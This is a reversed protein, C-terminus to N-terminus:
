REPNILELMRYEEFKYSATTLSESWSNIIKGFRNRIQSTTRGLDIADRAIIVLSLDWEGSIMFVETVRPHGSLYAAFRELEDETTNHLRIKVDVINAFGFNRPRLQIKPYYVKEALMRNMRKKVSDISLGVEGAIETLPARCNRQLIDLIMCDKKDLKVM